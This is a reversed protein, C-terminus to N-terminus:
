QSASHLIYLFISFIYSIQNPEYKRLFNHTHQYMNTSKHSDIILYPVPIHKSSFLMNGAPM